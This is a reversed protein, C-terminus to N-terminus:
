MAMWSNNDDGESSLPNFRNQGSSIKGGGSPFTVMMKGDTIRAMCDLMDDNASFPFKTYEEAIFESILDHYQEDVDIYTLTYPIFFRGKSFLPVLKKIRETKPVSGGLPLINLYFGEAEMRENYYDIDAQMGYSEYGIETEINWKEVLMKLKDWKESLKLKDRVMDVLFYNRLSDVGVVAMVTYDNKKGKKGSPDVLLYYNLNPLNKYHRLWEARFKQESKATPDQLMQSSYNFEDLIKAKADLEERTLFTPIGGFQAKGKSDVESPYLRVTLGDDKMMHEYIDGSSYRTGVVRFQGGRQGLHVSSQYADWAKKMQAPTTVNKDNIPDDYIRHSYHKGTPLGDVLGNAEVAAEKVNVRRKVYLGNELSWQAAEKKPNEYFIHPWCTHLLENQEMEIKIENLFSKAIARTHCFIGQTAEPNKIMTWITLAKTILSSKWHERAWLDLTKDHKDQIEYCRAVLFPSVGRGKGGLPFNLVFYCFGFFDDEGVAQMSLYFEDAQKKKVYQQLKFSMELYDFKHDRESVHIGLDVLREDPKEFNIKIPMM